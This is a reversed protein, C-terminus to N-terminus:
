WLLSTKKDFSMLSSFVYCEYYLLIEIVTEVLVIM